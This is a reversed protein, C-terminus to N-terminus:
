TEGSRAKSVSEPLYSPSYSTGNIIITEQGPKYILFQTQGGLGSQAPETVALAFAVAISADVANGGQNLIELGASVAEPSGASVVGSFNDNNDSCSSVTLLTLVFLEFFIRYSKIKLQKFLRAIM